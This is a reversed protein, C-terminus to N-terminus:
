ISHRWLLGNRTRLIIQDRHLLVAREEQRFRENKCGFPLPETERTKRADDGTERRKEGGGTEGINREHKGCAGM